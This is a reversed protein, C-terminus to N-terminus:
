DQVLEYFSYLSDGLYWLDFLLFKLMLVSDCFTGVYGCMSSYFYYTLATEM